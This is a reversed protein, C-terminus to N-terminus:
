FVNVQYENPNQTLYIRQLIEDTYHYQVLAIEQDTEIRLSQLGQQVFKEITHELSRDYGSLRSIKVNLEQRYHQSKNNLEQLCYNVFTLYIDDENTNEIRTSQQQKVLSRVEKPWVKRNSQQRPLTSPLDGIGSKRYIIWLSHIIEISIIRHMLTAIDRLEELNTTSPLICHIKKEFSPNTKCLYDPIADFDMGNLKPFTLEISSAMTTTQRQNMTNINSSKETQQNKFPSLQHM